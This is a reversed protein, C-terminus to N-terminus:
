QEEADTQNFSRSNLGHLDYLNQLVYRNPPSVYDGDTNCSRRRSHCNSTWQLHKCSSGTVIMHSM